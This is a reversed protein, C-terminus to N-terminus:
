GQEAVDKEIGLTKPPVKVAHSGDFVSPATTFFGSSITYKYFAYANGLRELFIRTAGGTSAGTELIRMHPWRNSIQAAIRSLEDLYRPMGLADVHIRNLNNDEVMRELMNLEGRVVAPLNEGVAHMLELNISEPYSAVVHVIGGHTDDDWSPSVYLLPRKKVLALMDDIYSFLSAQHQPLVQWRSM